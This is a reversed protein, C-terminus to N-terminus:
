VPRPSARYDAPETSGARKRKRRRAISHALWVIIVIGAAALYIANSGIWLVVGVVRRLRTARAISDASISAPQSWDMTKLRPIFGKQVTGRLNYVAVTASFHRAVILARSFEDWNLPPFAADTAADGSSATIGVAVIQAAPGYKWILASGIKQNFTPYLMLVEDNGRVDVLGLERELVTSHAKREDAIFPLQYTQVVYGRSQMERIIASYADQASRVRASEFARRLLVGLLQFKHNRFAAFESFNPEIDFGVAVWQLNNQKTWTDFENFRALTQPANDANSYYGQEPPLLIWATVPIAAADLRRVIDARQPTFDETSIAVGANLTKLDAILDPTLLAQLDSTSGDAAFILHPPAAVKNQVEVNDAEAVYLNAFSASTLLIASLCLLTKWDSARTRIPAPRM